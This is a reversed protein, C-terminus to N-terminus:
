YVNMAIALQLPKRDVDGFETLMAVNAFITPGITVTGYGGHVHGFIHLRPKLNKVVELLVPCGQHVLSMHECDLIGHPPGHTILIDIDPPIKAYIRRRDEPDSHGFAGGYLSTLPSGWIKLGHSEMGRNILLTANLLHTVTGAEVLSDHNGPIVIKTPHPLEGLWRDFDAVKSPRKSMFTFDGAHILIDGPPM